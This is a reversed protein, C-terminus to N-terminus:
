TGTDKGPLAHVHIGATKLGKHLAEAFAPADPRDGHVCLTDAQVNIVQGDIGSVQGHRALAVAQEVAEDINEIVAGRAGRPLLRADTGYRRDTFAEHATALGADRAVRCLQGGAFGVVRLGADVDRVAQVLAQALEPGKELMHYLAGHPKVHGSVLGARRAMAEMAGLQVVCLAYLERPSIAMARRGFGALDPLGVHAGVAVGAHAAADLTAQMTLPDGAHFGCAVNISSVWPMVEADAGMRWAGFSEGMDCNLDVRKM